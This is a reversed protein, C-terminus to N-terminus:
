FMRNSGFAGTRKENRVRCATAATLLGRENRSGFSTVLLPKAPRACFEANPRPRHVSVAEGESEYFAIPATFWWVALVVAMTILIEASQMARRRVKRGARGGAEPERFARRRLRSLGGSSRHGAEFGSRRCLGAGKIRHAPLSLSLLGDAWLRTGVRGLLEPLTSHLAQQGAATM